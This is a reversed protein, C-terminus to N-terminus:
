IDLNVVYSNFYESLSNGTGITVLNAIKFPYVTVPHIALEISIYRWLELYQPWAIPIYRLFVGYFWLYREDSRSAEGEVSNMRNVKVFIILYITLKHSAIALVMRVLREVKAIQFFCCQYHQTQFIYYERSIRIM